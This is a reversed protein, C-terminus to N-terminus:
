RPLPDPFGVPGDVGSVGSGATPPAYIDPGRRRLRSPRTTREHMTSGRAVLYIVVGLWPLVIILLTWLAKGWGGLEDSRVIDGFIVVLLWVWLVLAVLQVITWFLGAMPYSSGTM